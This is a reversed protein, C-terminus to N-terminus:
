NTENKYKTTWRPGQNRNLCCIHEKSDVAAQCLFLQSSWLSFWFSDQETFKTSLSNQRAAMHRRSSRQNPRSNEHCTQWIIYALILRILKLCLRYTFSFKASCAQTAGREMDKKRWRAICWKRTLFTVSGWCFLMCLRRQMPKTIERCSWLHTEIGSNCIYMHICICICMCMCMCMCM